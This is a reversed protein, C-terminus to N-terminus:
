KDTLVFIALVVIVIAIFAAAINDSKKSRRVSGNERRYAEKEEPTMDKLKEKEEAELRKQEAMEQKTRSFLVILLVFFLVIAMASFLFVLLAFMIADALSTTTGISFGLLIIVGILLLLIVSLAIVKMKKDQRDYPRRQETKVKAPSKAQFTLKNSTTNEAIPKAPKLPLHETEPNSALVSDAPILPQSTEEPLETTREVISREVTTAAVPERNVVDEKIPKPKRNFEVHWGNRYLRKEVTCQTFVTLIFVLSIGLVSRQNM